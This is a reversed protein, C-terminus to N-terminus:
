KLGKAAKVLEEGQALTETIRKPLNLRTHERSREEKFRGPDIRELHKRTTRDRGARTSSPACLRFNKSRVDVM